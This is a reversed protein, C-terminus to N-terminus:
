PCNVAAPPTLCGLSSGTDSGISLYPEPISVAANGFLIQLVVVADVVNYRGDNNADAADLCPPAPGGAFLDQLIYVADAITVSAQTPGSLSVDIASGNANGRVFTGPAVITVSLPTLYQSQIERGATSPDVVINDDIGAGFTIATPGTCPGARFTLDAFGLNTGSAVSSPGSHDVDIVAGM